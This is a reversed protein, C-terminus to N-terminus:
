RQTTPDVQDGTSGEVGADTSTEIQEKRVEETVQRDETVTETGLKVREVPVAQKEVVVQEEHLVLEHEEESIAPGDMAKGITAQDAETIPEREVRVEERTVPVTVTQQETVVYKRLRAKGTAVKETGVKLQEESRTTAEDTTLGSTDQGETRGEVDDYVGDGDRDGRGSGAASRDSEQDYLATEESQAPQTLGYHRYLEAEEDPTIRGDAEVQPADKVQDKGYPVQLGQSTLQAQDVPVFSEKTGFMGTKVTVWSPQGSQDDLYVQGVGGIKEGDTGYVDKDLVDNVNSQDFSM